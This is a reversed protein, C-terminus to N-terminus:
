RLLVIRKCEVGSGAMLRVYYTGSPVQMRNEDRGDWDITVRTGQCGDFRRVLRGSVDYISVRGLEGPEATAVIRTSGICPNPSVLLLPTVAGSDKRVEEDVGTGSQGDLNGDDLFITDVLSTFVLDFYVAVPHANFGLSFQSWAFTHSLLQLHQAVISDGSDIEALIVMATGTLSPINYYFSFDYHTGGVVAVPTTAVGQCVPTTGLALSYSGGHVRTSRYASGQDLIATTIWGVPMQVSLTDFWNEFGPNPLINAGRSTSAGSLAVLLLLSVIVYRM